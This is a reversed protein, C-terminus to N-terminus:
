DAWMGPREGPETIRDRIGAAPNRISQARQRLDAAAVPCAGSQLYTSAAHTLSEDVPDGLVGSFGDTAPCSATIGDYYAGSGQANVSEFNVASYTSSCNDRPRFGFPKGCTTGGITVVDVYPKLGNVVLESASCTRSGTLVIVRSFGGTAATASGYTYTYNDATHRSNHRLTTFPAGNRNVGAVLSALVTSSDSVWAADM